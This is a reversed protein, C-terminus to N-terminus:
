RSAAEPKPDPSTGPSGANSASPETSDSDGFVKTFNSEEFLTAEDLGPAAPGGASGEPKPQALLQTALQKANYTKGTGPPGYLIIARNGTQIMDFANKTTTESVSAVFLLTALAQQDKASLGLYEGGTIRTCLEKSVSPWESVFDNLPLEWNDVRDGWEVNESLERFLPSLKRFSRLSLIPVSRGHNAIMWIFKPLFRSKSFHEFGGINPTKCSLFFKIIEFPFNYSAFHTEPAKFTSPETSPLEYPKDSDSDSSLRFRGDRKQLHLLNAVDEIQGIHEKLTPHGEYFDTFNKKVTKWKNAPIGKDRPRYDIEINPLSPEENEWRELIEYIQKVRQAALSGPDVVSARNKWLRQLKEFSLNM